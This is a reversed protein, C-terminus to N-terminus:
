HHGVWILPCAPSTLTNIFQALPRAWGAGDEFRKNKLARLQSPTLQNLQQQPIAGQTNGVKTRVVDILDPPLGRPGEPSTPYAYQIPQIQKLEEDSLQPLNFAPM